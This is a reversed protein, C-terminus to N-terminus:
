GPLDPTPWVVDHILLVHRLTIISLEALVHFNLQILSETSTPGLCGEQPYNECLDVTLVKHLLELRFLKTM